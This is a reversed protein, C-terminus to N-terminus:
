VREGDPVPLSIASPPIASFNEPVNTWLVSGTSSVISFKFRGTGNFPLTQGKNKDNHDNDHGSGFSELESKPLEIRGQFSMQSPVQARAITAACLLLIWANNKLKM